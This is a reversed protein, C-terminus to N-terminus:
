HGRQLVQLVNDVLHVFRDQLLPCLTMWALDVCQRLSNNITKLLPGVNNVNQLFETHNLTGVVLDRRALIHFTM